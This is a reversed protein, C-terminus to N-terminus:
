RPYAVALHGSGITATLLGAASAAAIGPAVTLAGCGTGGAVKLHSGQPVVIRAAGSGLAVNLSRPVTAIGLQLSGSGIVAQLSPCALAYGTVSGAGASAWVPGSVNRLAIRGSTVALHLPGTLGRVSISGSGASVTVPLRAPVSITLGVSCDDFQNLSPCRASVVLAGRRVASALSPRGFVWSLSGAVTVGATDGPRLIVVGAPAVVQLGSVRQRYTATPVPLNRHSAKLWLRFGVPTVVVLATVLAVTIWIWRRRPRPPAIVSPQATM